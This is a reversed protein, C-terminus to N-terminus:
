QAKGEHYKIYISWLLVYHKSTSQLWFYVCSTRPMSSLSFPHTQVQSRDQTNPLIGQGSEERQAKPPGGEIKRVPSPLSRKGERKEPWSRTRKGAWRKKRGIPVGQPAAPLNDRGEKGGTEEFCFELLGSMWPHGLLMVACPKMEWSTTRVCVRWSPQDPLYTRSPFIVRLSLPLTCVSSKPWLWPWAGPILYVM